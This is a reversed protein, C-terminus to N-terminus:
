CRLSRCTTARLLRRRGYVHGYARARDRICRRSLPSNCDRNAFSPFGNDTKGHVIDTEGSCYAVIEMPKRALVDGFALAFPTSCAPVFSLSYQIRERVKPRHSM